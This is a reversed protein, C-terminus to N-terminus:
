FKKERLVIKKNCNYLPYIVQKGHRGRFAFLWGAFSCQENVEGVRNNAVQFSGCFTFVRIAAFEDAFCHALLEIFLGGLLDM